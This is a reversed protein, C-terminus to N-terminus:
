LSALDRMADRFVQFSRSRNRDPNWNEAIARAAELKRLGTRFYGARRLVTEFAEWTGGAVADPNRFRARFPIGAPAKPYAARVADWDGFHWAELEEIALRNVVQWGAGSARTRTMLNAEAAMRELRGKLEHCDEDDRDILVAIRWDEPLWAACGKLREPLRKLLDAKCRNRYVAFNVSGLIRPLLAQLAVAMSEEEVLVEVHSVKM